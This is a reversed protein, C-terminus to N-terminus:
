SPVGGSGEGRLLIWWEFPENGWVGGVQSSWSRTVGGAGSEESVQLAPDLSVTGVRPGM